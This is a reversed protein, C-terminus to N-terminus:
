LRADTASNTLAREDGTGTLNTVVVLVVVVYYSTLISFTDHTTLTSAWVAVSLEEAGIRQSDMHQSLVRATPHYRRSTPPGKPM